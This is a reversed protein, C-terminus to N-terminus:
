WFRRRASNAGFGNSAPVEHIPWLPPSAPLWIEDLVVPEANRWLTRRIQVASDGAKLAVQKKATTTIDTLANRMTQNIGSKYWFQRYLIDPDVTHKLQVLSCATNSCLVLELPASLGEEKSDRDPFGIIYQDGLSLIPHLPASECVRCTKRTQYSTM